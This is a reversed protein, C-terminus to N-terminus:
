EATEVVALVAFDDYIRFPINNVVVDKGNYPNVVVRNGVKAECESKTGHVMLRGIQSREAMHGTQPVVHLGSVMKPLEEMKVLVRKGTPRFGFSGQAMFSSNVKEMQSM